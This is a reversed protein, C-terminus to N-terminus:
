PCSPAAGGCSYWGVNCSQGVPVSSDPMTQYTPYPNPSSNCCAQGVGPPPMTGSTGCCRWTNAAVLACGAPPLFPNTPASASSIVACGRVPHFGNAWCPQTTSTTTPPPSGVVMCARSLGGGCAPQGTCGVDPFNMACNTHPSGSNLCQEGLTLSGDRCVCSGTACLITTPTTCTSTSCSPRGAGGCSMGGVSCAGAGSVMSLSNGLISPSTPATCCNNVTPAIANGCCRYFGPSVLVCPGLASAPTSAACIGECDYSSYYGNPLCPQTTTTTPGTTTSTSTVTSTTTTSTSTSTTPPNCCQGPFLSGSINVLCDGIAGVPSSCSAPPYACTTLGPCTSVTTTTTSGSTTSTSTSTSTTVSGSTSSSSSSTSSSSSSSTSTTSTMTTTTSGGCFGPNRTACAGNSASVTQVVDYVCGNSLAGCTGGGVLPTCQGGVPSGNTCTDGCTPTNCYAYNGTTGTPLSSGTICGYPAGRYNCSMGPTDNPNNCGGCVATGSCTPIWASCNFYPASPCQVGMRGRLITATVDTYTGVAGPGGPCSTAYGFGGTDACRYTPAYGPIGAQMGCVRGSACPVRYCGDGAAFAAGTGIGQIVYTGMVSRSRGCISHQNASWNNIAAAYCANNGGPHVRAPCSISRDTPPRTNCDCDVMFHYDLTGEVNATPKPPGLNFDVNPTFTAVNTFTRDVATVGAPFSTESWWVYGFGPGPPVLTGVDSADFTGGNSVWAGPGCIDRARMNAVHRGQQAPTVRLDCRALSMNGPMVGVGPPTPFNGFLPPGGPYSNAANFIPTPTGVGGSVFNLNHSIDQASVNTAPPGLDVGNTGAFNQCGMWNYTFAYLNALPVAAENYVGQLDVANANCQVEGRPTQFTAGAGYPGVALRNSITDGPRGIDTEGSAPTIG